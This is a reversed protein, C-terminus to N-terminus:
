APKVLLQWTDSQGSGSFSVYPREAALQYGHREYLKRAGANTDEVIVSLGKAGTEGALRDAEKLLASGVGRGRAEMHTALVNVYWTGPAENELEVLPRILNSLGALSSPDVSDPQRYGILLGAVQGDFEAIVGNRYCFASDERLARQRGMELVSAADGWDETQSWFYLALGHAAADVLVTMDSADSKRAKRISIDTSM